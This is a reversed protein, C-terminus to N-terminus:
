PDLRALCDRMYRMSDRALREGGPKYDFVEVSVWGAYDIERLAKFIPRFDLQGFGPGQGNPDNAHFHVLLSRHKRILEPIPTGETAMALCDLHLRCRPSGVLDILEVADAATTLFNTTKPGLPELAIVVGTKELAPVVTGLVEAAYKMGEARGVGPLLNRQKPSGFVLVKGGLDACFQTLAVLYDATKRRVAADPSTLLFGETKALLWHLAVVQLNARGAQKRLEERRAAPIETVYKALTFPAIEIGTYGCEAAVACAKEFPWDGFTENCIALRMPRHDQAARLIEAAPGVLGAAAGVAAASATRHLFDRRTQCCSM